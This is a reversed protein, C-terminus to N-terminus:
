PGPQESTLESSEGGLPLHCAPRLSDTKARHLRKGTLYGSLDVSQFLPDKKKQPLGTAELYAEVYEENHHRTPVVHEKGGKEHFRFLGERGCYHSNM